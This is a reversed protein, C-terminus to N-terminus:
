IWKLSPYLIRMWLINGDVFDVNPLMKGLAEAVPKLSLSKDRVEPRGLHSILVIKRAGSKRLFELTPLSARIRLDDTIKGDKIPVNYDVRVLVTQGKIKIDRITKYEM